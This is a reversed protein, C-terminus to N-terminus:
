RRLRIPDRPQGRLQDFHRAFRYTGGTAAAIEESTRNTGERGPPEEVSTRLVIVHIAVDAEHAARAAALAAGWDGPDAVTASGVPLTPLGDSLLLIMARTPAATHRSRHERILSL